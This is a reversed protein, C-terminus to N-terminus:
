IMLNQVFKNIKISKYSKLYNFKKTLRCIKVAFVIKTINKDSEM